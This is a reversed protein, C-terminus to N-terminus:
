NIKLYVKLRKICMAFVSYVIFLLLKLDLLNRKYIKLYASVNAFKFKIKSNKSIYSEDHQRWRTLKEELYFAPAFYSLQVYLFWDFLKDIPSEFEVQEFLDGRVMVSSMTLIPNECGFDYFMNKPFNRTSNKRVIKSFKEQACEANVGFFEVNNFIIGVDYKQAIQVKKELYDPVWLDDSELFAVWQGKAASIGRRLSNVLGINKMNRILTIRSDKNAFDCLIEMSNDSSCDDVVILEWDSYSQNLVSTITDKLYRGYNYSTIVVSILM